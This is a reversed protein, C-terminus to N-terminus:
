SWEKSTRVSKYDHKFKEVNELYVARIVFRACSFCLRPWITPNYDSEYVAENPVHDPQTVICRECKM